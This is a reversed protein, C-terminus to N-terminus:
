RYMACMYGASIHRAHTCIIVSILVHVCITVPALLKYKSSWQKKGSEEKKVHLSVMFKRDHDIRDVNFFILHM